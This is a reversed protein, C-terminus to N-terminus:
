HNQPVEYTEKMNRHRMGAFYHKIAIIEFIKRKPLFPFDDFVHDKKDPRKSLVESLCNQYFTTLKSPSALSRGSLMDTLAVNNTLRFWVHQHIINDQQIFLYPSIYFTLSSLYLLKLALRITHINKCEEMPAQPIPALQQKAVKVVLERCTRQPESLERIPANCRNSSSHLTSIHRPPQLDFMDTEAEKTQRHRLPAVM